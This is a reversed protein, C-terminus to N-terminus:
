PSRILFPQPSSMPIDSEFASLMECLTIVSTQMYYRTTSM